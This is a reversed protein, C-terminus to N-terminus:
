DEIKNFEHTSNVNEWFIRRSEEVGCNFLLDLVSINPVFEKSFMQPYEPCQYSQVAVPIGAAQFADMDLFGLSAGTGTMYATAGAARCIALVDGSRRADREQVGSLNRRWDLASQNVTKVPIGLMDMCLLVSDKTVDFLFTYDKTFVPELRELIEDRYPSRSYLDRLYSLHKGQWRANDMTEIENYKKERYGKKSATVSLYTLEGDKKLFRNRLMYSRDELQVEDMFVFLDVKTIKDFYGLWPFYHPQHIAVKM